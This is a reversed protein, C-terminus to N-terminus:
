VQRKHFDQAMRACELELKSIASEQRVTLTIMLLICSLEDDFISYKNLSIFDYQLADSWVGITARLYRERETAQQLARKGKMADTRLQVIEDHWEALRKGSNDGSLASKLESKFSCLILEVKQYDFVSWVKCAM